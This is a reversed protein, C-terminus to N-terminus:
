RSVIILPGSERRCVGAEALNCHGQNSVTKNKDICDGDINDHLACRKKAEELTLTEKGIPEIHVMKNGDVWHEKITVEITAM